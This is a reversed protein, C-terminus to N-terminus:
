SLRGQRGSPTALTHESDSHCVQHDRGASYRESPARATALVSDVTAGPYAATLYQSVLPAPIEAV